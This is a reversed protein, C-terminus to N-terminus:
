ILSCEKKKREGGGGGGKEQVHKTEKEDSGILAMQGRKERKKQYSGRFAGVSSRIEGRQKDKHRKQACDKKRGRM